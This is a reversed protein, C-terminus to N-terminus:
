ACLYVAPLLCLKKLMLAPQVYLLWQAKFDKKESKMLEHNNIQLM